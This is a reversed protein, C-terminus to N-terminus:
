NSKRPKVDDDDDDDDDHDHEVEITDEDKDISLEQATSGSPVLSKTKNTCQGTCINRTQKNRVNSQLLYQEPTIMDPPPVPLMHTDPPFQQVIQTM